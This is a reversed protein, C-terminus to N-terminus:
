TTALQSGTLVDYTLRKGIISRAVAKFREGDPLQRFNFRFSQEAVYRFVHFPDISIYTGKIGRKLVSWFNEM